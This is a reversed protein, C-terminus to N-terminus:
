YEGFHCEKERESITAFQYGKEELMTIVEDLTDLTARNTNSDHMLIVPEEVRFCDKKINELISGTSPTGVSDEASVNWDVYKMKERQLRSVIDKKFGCIYCNSSGWPFRWVIPQYQFEQELLTKVKSVDQYYSEASQYIKGSEHSYTHIGIEHGERIERRVVEKMDGEIQQGILFFTAKAQHKKLIDLYRDTLGSPGDDFTLYATKKKQQGTEEEDTTQSEGMDLIGESLEQREMDSQSSATETYNHLSYYEGALLFGALVVGLLVGWKRTM